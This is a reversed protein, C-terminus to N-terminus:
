PREGFLASGVRVSTAGLRVALEYDASMGMSLTELGHRRALRALLAFHLSAPEELPPICMLGEVALGHTERVIDLFAPLDAPAVGAKQPEEGTNVQVLLRPARGTRDFAKVLAAALSERDLTEIVDFLACADAAKNSQLPGVLRLELDARTERRAAWRGRAEQVRNEGFVRQGAALAAEIRDEPQMKSVAVLTVGSPDRGAAKAAHAIRSLIASRAAAVGGPEPLDPNM